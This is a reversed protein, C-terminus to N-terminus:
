NLKVHETSSYHRNNRTARKLPTAMCRYAVRQRSFIYRLVGHGPFFPGGLCFATVHVTYLVIWYYKCLM